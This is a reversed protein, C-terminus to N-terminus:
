PLEPAPVFWEEGDIVVAFSADELQDFRAVFREPSDEVPEAGLARVSTSCEGMVSWGGQEPSYLLRLEADGLGLVTQFPSEASRAGALGFTTRLISATRHPMLSSALARLEKPANYFRQSVANVLAAQTQLRRALIPHRRVHGGLPHDQGHALADIALLIQEETPEM